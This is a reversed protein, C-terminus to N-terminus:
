FSIAAKSQSIDCDVRWKVLMTFLQNYQVKDNSIEHILM